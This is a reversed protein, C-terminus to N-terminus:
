IPKIYRNFYSNEEKCLQQLFLYKFSIYFLYNSFTLCLIIDLDMALRKYGHFYILLLNVHLSIFNTNLLNIYKKQEIAKKLFILFVSHNYKNINLILSNLYQFSPYGPMYCNFCNYYFIFFQFDEHNWSM